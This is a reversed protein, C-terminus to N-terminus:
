SRPPPPPPPRGDAVAAGAICGTPAPSRPFAARLPGALRTCRVLADDTWRHLHGAHPIDEYAGTRGRRGPPRSLRIVGQAAARREHHRSMCIGPFPRVKEIAECGVDGVVAADPSSAM